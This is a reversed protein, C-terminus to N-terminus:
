WSCNSSRAGTVMLRRNGCLKRRRQWSCSSSLRRWAGIARLRRIRRSCSCSRAGTAKLRGNSCLKRRRRWGCSSSLQRRARLAKLRRIQWSRRSSRAGTARLRGNSCLKRGWRWGCRSSLRRRGGIAGPRGSSKGHRWDRRRTGSRGERSIMSLRRLLHQSLTSRLYRCGGSRHHKTGCSRGPQRSQVIIEALALCQSRSPGSEKRGEIMMFLKSSEWYAWRM